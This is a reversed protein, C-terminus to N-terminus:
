PIEISLSLRREINKNIKLSVDKSTSLNVIVAAVTTCKVIWKSLKIKFIYVYKM